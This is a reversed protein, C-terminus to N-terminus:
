MWKYTGADGGPMATRASWPAREATGVNLSANCTIAKTTYDLAVPFRDGEQLCVPQDDQTLAAVKSAVWERQLGRVLLSGSAWCVSTVQFSLDADRRGFVTLVM